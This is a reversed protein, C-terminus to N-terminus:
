ASDVAKHSNCLRANAESYEVIVSSHKGYDEHAKMVNMPKGLLVASEACGVGTVLDEGLPPTQIGSRAPNVSTKSAEVCASLVPRLCTEPLSKVHIM